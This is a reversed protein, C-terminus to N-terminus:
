QKWNIASYNLTLQKPIIESLVTFKISIHSPAMLLTRVSLYALYKVGERGQICKSM